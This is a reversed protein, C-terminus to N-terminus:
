VKGEQELAAITRMVGEAHCLRLWEYDRQQPNRGDVADHCAACSWAGFALDSPKMGVGCYSTLRLHALVTDEGGGTCIGPIRIMCQRGRAEKRLKTM